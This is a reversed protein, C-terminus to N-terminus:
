KNEEAESKHGLKGHEINGWTFVEGNETVAAM